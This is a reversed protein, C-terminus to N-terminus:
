LLSHHCTGPRVLIRLCLSWCLQWWSSLLPKMMGLQNANLSPPTEGISCSIGTNMINTGGNLFKASTL